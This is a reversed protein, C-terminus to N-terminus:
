DFLKGPNLLHDPDLTQKMARLGKLATEGIQKEYYIKHDVGVGHHHSIAAGNKVMASSAAKKMKLWQEIPRKLDMPFMVTYYLCVGHHYSHSIHAMALCEPMAARIENLVADYVIKANDYTTSTEMTDVGVGFEMLHNRLFPMNFRGKMWGKGPGTGAFFGHYESVIQRLQIEVERIELESGEMGALVLSFNQGPGFLRLFTKQATSSFSHLIGKKGIGSFEMLLSTETADSLRIMALPLGRRNCERVFSIGTPFDHLLIGVYKRNQPLEHVKVKARTIVGLLGESGAAIQNYDPGISSAPSNLTEIKGTPTLLTMAQMIEEIKGYRNSQQGASRAAIWGGLTSYEFSQPFHGLTYGKPNLANEIEPGYIGSEFEALRNEENLGLFKNMRTMDLSIVRSSNGVELGGVVSTGGGFPIITIKNKKSIKYIAEIQRETTPYLVADVFKKLSNTRLRIIDYYSQGASHFVREHRDTRCGSPGTIASLAKLQSATLRGAPLTLSSEECSPTPSFNETRRLKGKLVELIEPIYPAQFFAHSQAGWANWLLSKRDYNIDKKIEFYEM